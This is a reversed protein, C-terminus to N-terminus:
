GRLEGMGDDPEAVERVPNAAFLLPVFGEPLNEPINEPSLRCGVSLSPSEGFHLSYQPMSINERRCTCHVILLGEMTTYLCLFVKYTHM